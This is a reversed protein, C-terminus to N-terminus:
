GEICTKLLYNWFLYNEGMGDESQSIFRKTIFFNGNELNSLPSQHARAAAFRIALARGSSSDRRRKSDDPRTPESVLV